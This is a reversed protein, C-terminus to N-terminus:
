RRIELIKRLGDELSYKPIWEPVTPWSINPAEVVEGGSQRAGWHVNISKKALREIIQVIERITYSKSSYIGYERFGQKEKSLVLSLFASCFDEVYVLNIKQNGSTAALVDDSEILALLTNVLKRRPDLPGFTDFIKVSVVDLSYKNSYFKQLDASAKKLASYLNVPVPNKQSREEWSTGAFVARGSFQVTRCAELISASLTFNSEILKSIENENHQNVFFGALHIICDIKHKLLIDAVPKASWVEEKHSTIGKKVQLRADSRVLVHVECGGNSLYSALERGLYGTAGTVLVVKKEKM